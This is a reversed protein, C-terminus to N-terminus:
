PNRLWNRLAMRTIGWLEDLLDKEIQEPPAWGFDNNYDMEMLADGHLIQSRYSYMENRRKELAEGPAYKEVFNRFRERAGKVSKDTLSEIAIVLSAFVASLSITWQRSATDMWFCARSFKARNEPSLQRWRCISDDLDAPVHLHRGDHCMVKFYDAPAIEAMPKGAPRSLEEVLPDGINAFFYEQVWKIDPSRGESNPVIAWFHRPRQVLATASGALLISLLQTIRRHERIRRYNTIPWHASAVIPFEVIFPHEAIEIHARPADDSLPVIQVGSKEGRWWGSVRYNSFSYDRGIKVPETQEVDAVIGSWQAQDFAPGPEIALIQKDPSFTLKVRCSSDALPLYFTYPNAARSLYQGPRGIREYLIFKLEGQDVDRWSPPMLNQAVPTEKKTNTACLM